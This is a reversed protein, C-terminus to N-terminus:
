DSIRRARDRGWFHQAGTVRGRSNKESRWQVDLIDAVLANVREALSLTSYTYSNADGFQYSLAAEDRLAKAAAKLDGLRDTPYFPRRGTHSQESM